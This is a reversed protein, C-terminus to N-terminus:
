AIRKYTQLYSRVVTSITSLVYVLCIINHDMFHCPEGEGTCCIEDVTESHTYTYIYVVSTCWSAYFSDIFMLWLM